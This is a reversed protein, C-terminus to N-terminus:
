SSVQVLRVPSQNGFEPETREALLPAFSSRFRVALVSWLLTVVLAVPLGAPMMTIHFVLINAIVAALLTLALPVYRNALLLSGAVFEVADVFLVWHSQFFVDQFTGALGPPMSPPNASLIFGSVGSAFFVLGLLIRSVVFATKM